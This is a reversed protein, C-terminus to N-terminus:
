TKHKFEADIQFIKAYEMSKILAIRILNEFTNRIYRHNARTLCMFRM